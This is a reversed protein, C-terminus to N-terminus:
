GRIRRPELGTQIGCWHLHLLQWITLGDLCHWGEVRLAERGTVSTSGQGAVGRHGRVGWCLGDDMFCRGSMLADSTCSGLLRDCCGDLGLMLPWLLVEVAFWIPPLTPASGILVWQQPSPCRKVLWLSHAVCSCDCGSVMPLHGLLM